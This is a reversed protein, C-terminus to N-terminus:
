SVGSYNNGRRKCSSIDLILQRKRRCDEVLEKVMTAGVVVVLPLVNSVASVPSIPTLSLLASLLFYLNAVRRFQEFLSKPMFSALTYKTTRVYNGCYKLKQADPCEPDNCFVVRSFGPRGILSQHSENRFLKGFKLAHIKGLHQKKKNPSAM